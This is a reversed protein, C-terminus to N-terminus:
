HAIVTGYVGLFALGYTVYRHITASTSLGAMNHTADLAAFYPMRQRMKRCLARLRASRSNRRPGQCTVSFVQGFAGFGGDSVRRALILRFLQTWLRGSAAFSTQSSGASRGPFSRDSSTQFSPHSGPHFSAAFSTAYSLPFSMAYSLGFSPALSAAFGADFGPEFSTESRADSSTPFSAQFCRDSCGGLRDTGRAGWPFGADKAELKQSRPRLGGPRDRTPPV